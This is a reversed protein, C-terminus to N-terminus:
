EFRMSSDVERGHTTIAGISVYHVGPHAIQRVNGISAANL